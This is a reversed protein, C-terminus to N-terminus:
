DASEAAQQADLARVLRKSATLRYAQEILEAVLDWDQDAELSIGIWGHVGVYPPVFFRVPDTAVLSSQAGPLAKCWVGWRGAHADHRMAFMKDNVRWSPNGVGGAETAEPLSLCIQRVRDLLEPGGPDLEAAASEEGPKMVARGVV